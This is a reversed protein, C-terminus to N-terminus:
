IYSSLKAKLEEPIIKPKGFNDIAVLEVM